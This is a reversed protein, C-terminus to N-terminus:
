KPLDSEFRDIAQQVQDLQHSQGVAGFAQDHNEPTAVLDLRAELIPAILAARSHELEIQLPLSAWAAATLLTAILLVGPRPAAMATFVLDRKWPQSSAGIRSAM